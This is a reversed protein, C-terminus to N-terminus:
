ERKRFGEFKLFKEYESYKEAIWDEELEFQRFPAHRFYFSSPDLLNILYDAAKEPTNVDEPIQKRKILEKVYQRATEEGLSYAKDFNLALWFVSAFYNEYAYLEEKPIKAEFGRKLDDAYLRVIKSFMKSGVGGFKEYENDSVRFIRRITDKICQPTAYIYDDTAFVENITLDRSDFYEDIDLVVEIGHGREFDEPMFKSAIEEDAGVTPEEEIRIIDLDRPMDTPDIGLTRKLLVRAAGGKYAYGEPLRKDSFRNKVKVKYYEGNEMQEIGINVIGYDNLLKQLEKDDVVTERKEVIWMENRREKESIDKAEPFYQRMLNRLQEQFSENSQEGTILEKM